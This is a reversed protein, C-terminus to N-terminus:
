KAEPVRALPPTQVVVREQRIIDRFTGDVATWDVVDVRFPLSSDEFARRLAACRREAAAPPGIVALDLDSFRKLGRGHARSGFAWVECDPAITRLAERVIAEHTPDLRLSV